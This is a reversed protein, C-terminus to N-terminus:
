FVCKARSFNYLHEQFCFWFVTVYCYLTSMRWDMCRWIDQDVSGVAQDLEERARYVCIEFSFSFRDEDELYKGTERKIEGM